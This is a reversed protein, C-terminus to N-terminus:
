VEKAKSDCMRERELGVVINAGEIAVKTVRGVVEQLSCTWSM